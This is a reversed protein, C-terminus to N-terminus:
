RQHQAPTNSKDLGSPRSPSLRTPPYKLNSKLLRRVAFRHGTVATWLTAPSRPSCGRYPIAPLGRHSCPWRGFCPPNDLLFTDHPSITSKILNTTTIHRPFTKSFMTSPEPNITSASLCSMRLEPNVSGTLDKSPSLIVSHSPHRAMSSLFYSVFGLNQMGAQTEQFFSGLFSGLVFGPQHYVFGLFPPHPDAKALGAM